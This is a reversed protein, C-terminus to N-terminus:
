SQRKQRTQEYQIEVTKGSNGKESFQHKPCYIKNNEAEVVFTTTCDYKACKRWVPPGSVIRAKAM